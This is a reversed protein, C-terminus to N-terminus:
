IEVFEFLIDNILKRKNLTCIYILIIHKQSYFMDIRLDDSILSEHIDVSKYIDDNRKGLHISPPGDSVKEIFEDFFDYFNPHKELIIYNYNGNNGMELAKIKEM